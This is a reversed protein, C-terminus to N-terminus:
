KAGLKESSGASEAVANGEVAKGSIREKSLGDAVSTGGEKLADEEIAKGVEAANRTGKGFLGAKLDKLAKGGTKEWLETGRKGAKALWKAGLFAALGLLPNSGRVGPDEPDFNTRYALSGRGIDEFRLEPM